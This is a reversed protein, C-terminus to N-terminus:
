ICAFLLAPYDSTFSIIGLTHVCKNEFKCFDRLNASLKKVSLCTSNAIRHFQVHFAWLELIFNAIRLREM